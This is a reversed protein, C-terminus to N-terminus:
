RLEVGLATAVLQANSVTPPGVADGRGWDAEPTSAVIRELYPALADLEAGTVRGVWRSLPMAGAGSPWAAMVVMDGQGIEGSARALSAREAAAVESAGWALYCAADVPRHKAELKRLRAEIARTM